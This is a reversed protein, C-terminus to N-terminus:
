QIHQWIAYFGLSIHSAQLRLTVFHSFTWPVHLCKCPVPHTAQSTFFFFLFREQWGTGKCDAWASLLSIIMDNWAAFQTFFIVSPQILKDEGDNFWRQSWAVHWEKAFHLVKKYASKWSMKSPIKRRANPGEVSLSCKSKLAKQASRWRSTHASPM